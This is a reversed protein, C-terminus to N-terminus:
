IDNLGSEENKLHLFQPGLSNFNKDLTLYLNEIEEFCAMQCLVSNEQVVFVSHEQEAFRQPISNFAPIKRSILNAWIMRTLFGKYIM